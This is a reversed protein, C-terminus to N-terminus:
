VAESAASTIQYILKVTAYCLLFLIRQLYLLKIVHQHNTPRSWIHFRAPPPNDATTQQCHHQNSQDTSPLQCPNQGKKKPWCLIPPSRCFKPDTSNISVQSHILTYLWISSESTRVVWVSLLADENQVAALSSCLPSQVHTSSGWCTLCSIFKDRVWASGVVELKVAFTSITQCRFDSAVIAVM